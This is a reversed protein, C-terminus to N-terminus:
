GPYPLDAYFGDFGPEVGGPLEARLTQYDMDIHMNTLVARKPKLREIWDLSRELHAHSPHPKYRLADVFWLALGELMALAPAEMQAVDNSYAASGFRFGYSIVGGHDQLIPLAALTGGPGDIEV